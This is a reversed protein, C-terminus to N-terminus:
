GSDSFRGTTLSCLPMTGMGPGATVRMNEVPISVARIGTIHTKAPSM